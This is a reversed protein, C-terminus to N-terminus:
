WPWGIRARSRTPWSLLSPALHKGDAIVETTLEDFYLTAEMVGGRMPFTQAQRLRRRDSMACFLHDVHRVGWGIAAQMQKSRPTRIAPTAAFARRRCARCSRRPAPWSRPSPRRASTTPSHSIRSTTARHRADPGGGRSPLRAGGTRLVPGYFHAGLVRPEATPKPRFERVLELFTLHQDHRAVTTTPQLEDHRAPRPPMSVTQFAEATGDMFDAGDGGHVHLDVFGPVLYGGELDVLALRRGLLRQSAPSM